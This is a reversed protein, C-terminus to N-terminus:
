KECAKVIRSIGYPCWVTFTQLPSVVWVWCAQAVYLSSSCHHSLEYSTPRLLVGHSFKFGVYRPLLSHFRFPTLCCTGLLSPCCATFVFLPPVVRIRCAQSLLNNYYRSVNKTIVVIFRIDIRQLQREACCNGKDISSVAKNEDDNVTHFIFFLYMCFMELCFGNSMVSTPCLFGLEVHFYM